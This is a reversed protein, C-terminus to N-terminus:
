KAMLNNDSIHHKTVSM